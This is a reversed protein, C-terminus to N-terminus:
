YEYLTPLPWNRQVASLTTLGRKAEFVAAFGTLTKKRVSYLYETGNETISPVAPRCARPLAATCAPLPRDARPPYVSTDTSPSALNQKAGM